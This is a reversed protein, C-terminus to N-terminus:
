QEESLLVVIRNNNECSVRMSCVATDLLADIDVVAEVVSLLVSWFWLDGVAVVAAFVIMLGGLAQIFMVTSFTALIVMSCVIACIATFWFAAVAMAIMFVPMVFAGYSYSLALPQFAQTRM